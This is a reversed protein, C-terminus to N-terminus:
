ENMKNIINTTSFGETLEITHVEGGNNIVDDAGAIEEIKYDKGKVLINPKIIKILNEPTYEDFLVVYDVFFLSALVSARANQNNIPRENGKIIKVSKDTNLGVVLIDGFDAAKALYEIHGLHLIDFCGNTFVIKKGEEKHKQLISLLSPIQIIKKNIKKLKSM